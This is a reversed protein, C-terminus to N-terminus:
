STEEETVYYAGTENSRTWADRNLAVAEPVAILKGLRAMTEGAFHLRGTHRLSARRNGDIYLVSEQLLRFATHLIFRRRKDSDAAAIVSKERAGKYCGESEIFPIEARKLAACLANHAAANQQKSHELREGSLIMVPLPKQSLKQM